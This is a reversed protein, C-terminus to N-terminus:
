KDYKEGKNIIFDWSIPKNEYLFLDFSFKAYMVSFCLAVMTLVVIVYEILEEGSFLYDAKSPQINSLLGHAAISLIIVLVISVVLNSMSAIERMSNLHKKIFMNEKEM